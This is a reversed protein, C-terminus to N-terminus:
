GIAWMPKRSAESLRHFHLFAGCEPCPFRIESDGGPTKETTQSFTDGEEIQFRCRCNQCSFHNGIPWPPRTDPIIGHALIKM